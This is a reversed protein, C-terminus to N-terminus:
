QNRREEVPRHQQRLHRRLFARRRFRGAGPVDHQRNRRNHGERAAHRGRHRGDELAGSRHWDSRDRHERTLFLTGNVKTFDDPLNTTAFFLFEKLLVTGATTGDSAWLGANSGNRFILRGNTEILPSTPSTSSLSGKVSVTGADTGDSKWLAYGTSTQALFFLADSFAALSGPSSSATGTINTLATTGEATGDTKWLQTGTGFVSSAGFFITGNVNALNASSSSMQTTTSVRVTGAATGDSKWVETGNGGDDITFFL